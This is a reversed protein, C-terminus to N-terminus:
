KKRRKLFAVAGIVAALITTPEPVPAFEVGRFATNTGATALVTFSSAAGGDVVGVLKTASDASTAYLEINGGNDRGTLGRLGATLNVNLTYTRSWSGSVFEWKQIGGGNATSRDDAIYCTNADKFWFDYPSATGTGSGVTSIVVSGTSGSTTALGGSIRYIGSTTTGSTSYYLENGSGANFINIVRSNTTTSSVTALNAGGLDAYVQGTNSGAAWVQNGDYSVVSRINGASFTNMATSTDVTGDFFVRGAVRNVTASTTGAISATGVGSDYGGYMLYAGNNSLTLFGESTASGSSTLARNSGSVSTPMFVNYGSFANLGISWEKLVVATSANSLATGSGDLGVQSVVLNNATFTSPVGALSDIGLVVILSFVFLPKKNMLNVLRASEGQM